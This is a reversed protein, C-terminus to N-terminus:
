RGRYDPDRKAFFAAAGEALDKVRVVVAIVQQMM